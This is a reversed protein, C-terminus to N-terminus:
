LKGEKNWSGSKIERGPVHGHVLLVRVTTCTTDTHM